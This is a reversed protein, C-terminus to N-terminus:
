GSGPTTIDFQYEYTGQGDGEGTRKLMGSGTAGAYKGSGGIVKVEGGDISVDAEVVFVGAGTETFNCYVRTKAQGESTLHALGACEGFVVGGESVDSSAVTSASTHLVAGGDALPMLSRTVFYTGKGKITISAAKAVGSVFLLALTLSVVLAASFKSQYVSTSKFM